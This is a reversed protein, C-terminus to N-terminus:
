ALTPINPCHMKEHVIPRVKRILVVVGQDLSLLKDCKTKNLLTDPADDYRDLTPRCTCWRSSGPGSRLFWMHWIQQVRLPIPRRPVSPDRGM